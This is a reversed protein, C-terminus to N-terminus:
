RSRTPSRMLASFASRRTSIRSFGPIGPVDLTVGLRYAPNCSIRGPSTAGQWRWAWHASRNTISPLPANVATSPSRATICGNSRTSVGPQCHCSWPLALAAGIIQSSPSSMGVTRWKSALKALM